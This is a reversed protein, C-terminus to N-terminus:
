LADSSVFATPIVRLLLNAYRRNKKKEKYRQMADGRNRVLLEMDVKTAAETKFGEGRLLISQEMFQVDKSSGSCKPKSLGTGSLVRSVPFNNSESTAPGQSSTANNNYNQM